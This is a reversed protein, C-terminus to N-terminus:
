QNNKVNGQKRTSRTTKSLKIIVAKPCNNTLMGQFWSKSQGRGVIYQSQKQWTGPVVIVPPRKLGLELIPTGQGIGAIYGIVM